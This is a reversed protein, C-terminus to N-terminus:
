EDDYVKEKVTEDSILSVGLSISQSAILFTKETINFDPLNVFVADYPRGSLDCQYSVEDDSISISGTLNYGNKTVQKIPSTPIKMINIEGDNTLQICMGANRLISWCAALKTTSDDFTQTESISFPDINKKTDCDSLLSEIVPVGDNGKVVSFGTTVYDISANYLVSVGDLEYVIFGNENLETSSVTFYFVGLRTRIGNDLVDIAYWGKNFSNTELNISASELLSTEDTADREISADIINTLRDSEIISQIEFDYPSVHVIL